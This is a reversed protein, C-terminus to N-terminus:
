IDLTPYLHKLKTRADQTTFQWNIKNNKNNRDTQWVNVEQRVKEISELPRNLCQVNLVHLDIEAM